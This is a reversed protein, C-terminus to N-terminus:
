ARRARRALAWSINLEPLRSQGPDIATVPCEPEPSNGNFGEKGSFSGLDGGHLRQGTESWGRTSAALGGPVDAADSLLDCCACCTMQPPWSANLVDPGQALVVPV